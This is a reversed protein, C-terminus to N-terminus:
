ERASTPNEGLTTFFVVEHRKDPASASTLYSFHRSWEGGDDSHGVRGAEVVSIVLSILLGDTM